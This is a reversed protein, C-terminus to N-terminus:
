AIEIRPGSRKVSAAFYWGSTAQAHMREIVDVLEADNM